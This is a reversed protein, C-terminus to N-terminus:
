ATFILYRFGYTSEEGLGELQSASTAFGYRSDEGLGELQSASTAFGYRQEGLGELQSASTAFGYRSEGLGELQSASMSRFTQFSLQDSIFNSNLTVNTQITAPTQFTRYRVAEEVKKNPNNALGVVFLAFVLFVTSFTKQM